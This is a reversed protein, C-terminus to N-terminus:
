YLLLTRRARELMEKVSEPNGKLEDVSHPQLVRRGIMSRSACPLYFDDIRIIAAPWILKPSLGRIGANV